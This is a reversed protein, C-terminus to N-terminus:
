RSLGRRNLKKIRRRLVERYDTGQVAPALLTRGSGPRNSKSEYLILQSLIHAQPARVRLQKKVSSLLPRVRGGTWILQYSPSWAPDRAPQYALIGGYTGQIAELVDRKTNAVAIRPHYRYARPGKARAKTIMLSGEADIFGAVYKASVKSPTTSNQEKNPQHSGAGRRNLQKLRLYVSDRARLEGLSLPLLRGKPDRSRRGARILEDFAILVSAQKSKAVLFPAIKRIL